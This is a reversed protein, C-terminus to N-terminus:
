LEDESHMQNGSRPQYTPMDRQFGIWIIGTWNKERNPVLWNIM